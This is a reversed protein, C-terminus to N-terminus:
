PKLGREHFWKNLLEINAKAETLEDAFMEDYEARAGPDEISVSIRTHKEVFDIEQRRMFRVTTPDDFGALGGAYSRKLDELWKSTGSVM